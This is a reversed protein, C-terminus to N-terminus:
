ILVNCLVDNSALCYFVSYVHIYYIYVCFLMVILSMIIFVCCYNFNHWIVNHLSM